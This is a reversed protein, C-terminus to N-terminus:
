YCGCGGGGGALGGKAAERSNYNHERLQSQLPAPDLAMQPKALVGRQWPEVGACGALALAVATWTLLKLPKM